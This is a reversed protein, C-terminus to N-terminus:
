VGGSDGGSAGESLGPSLEVAGEVLEDVGARRRTVGSRLQGFRSGPSRRSSTALSGRGCLARRTWPDRDSTASRRAVRCRTGHLAGPVLAPQPALFSAPRLIALGATGIGHRQVLRVSVQGSRSGPRPCTPSLRLAVSVELTMLLRSCSSSVHELRVTRDTRGCREVLPGPELHDPHGLALTLQPHGHRSMSMPWYEPNKCAPRIAASSSVAHPNAAFM